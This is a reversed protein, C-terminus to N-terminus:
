GKPKPLTVTLTTGGAGTDATLVLMGGLYHVRERVARLGHKSLQTAPGDQLGIGNDKVTLMLAEDNDDVIIDVANAQAHAVINSLAEELTRLLAVGHGRPCVLEDEPLSCRVAIQHQESFQEALEGLAVKVGLFELKDNWLKMQMQRNTEIVNLLLQKMQAARDLLVREQPMQQTLLSLHMTLATLSSGLSDHLQRSLSRRENDWSTNVHGLLESLDAARLADVQSSESFQEPKSQSM